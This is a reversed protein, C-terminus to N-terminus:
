WRWWTEKALPHDASPWRVPSTGPPIRFAEWCEVPTELRVRAHRALHTRFVHDWTVLVPIECEEVEALILCASEGKSHHLLLEAVRLKISAEQLVDTPCEGFQCDIFREHEELRTPNSIRLAEARVTRVIFPPVQGHMYLRVAAIRQDGIRDNPGLSYQGNNGELFYTLVNSDFAIPDIYPV